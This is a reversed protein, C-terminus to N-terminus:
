TSPQDILWLRGNLQFAGKQVSTMCKMQFFIKKISLFLCAHSKNVEWSATYRHKLSGACKQRNDTGLADWLVPTLPWSAPPSLTPLNQCKISSRFGGMRWEIINECYASTILILSFPSFFLLLMFSKKKLTSVGGTGHSLACAVVAEASLFLSKGLDKGFTFYCTEKQLRQKQLTQSAHLTYTGWIPVQWDVFRGASGRRKRGRLSPIPPSRYIFRLMGHECHDRIRGRRVM